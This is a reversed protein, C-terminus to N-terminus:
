EIILKICGEEKKNYVHKGVIDLLSKIDEIDAGQFELYCVSDSEENEREYFDHVSVCFRDLIDELPYQSIDSPGTGEDYEPEQVFSLSTVYCDKKMFDDYTRYINDSVQIYGSEQYKEPLYVSIDRM